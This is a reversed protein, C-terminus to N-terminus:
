VYVYGYSANQQATKALWGSPKPPTDDPVAPAPPTGSSVLVYTTRGVRAGFGLRVGEHIGSEAHGSQATRGLIGDAVICASEHSRVFFGTIANQGTDLPGSLLAMVADSASGTSTGAFTATLM